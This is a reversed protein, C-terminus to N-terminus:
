YLMSAVLTLTDTYDTSAPTTADIKAKLTISATGSTVASSTALIPQLNATLAGVNNVAGNFPSQAIFPGGSSQSTSTVIAGYGSTAVSLNTTASAISAAALASSLSGTSKVYVVGGNLSNTSLGIDATASGNTVSGATLGSFAIAFPPTGTLSTAVSFTLSPAVTAATATPGFATGTFGGQLARVKVQYSTSAALGTIWVGSAGGWATYTQYQAVSNTTGVTNDTQVYNTTAFSNASIAIEYLTDTPNGTTNLVIKLRNYESSPNTFTPAPPVSANQLIQLGGNVRFNTSNLGLESQEGAEANLSYNTSTSSGGGNGFDYAKLTFNTSSPAAALLSFATLLASRTVKGFM